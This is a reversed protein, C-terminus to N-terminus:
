EGPHMGGAFAHSTAGRSYPVLKDGDLRLARLEFRTQIPHVDRKEGHTFVLLEERSSRAGPAVRDVDAGALKGTSLTEGPLAWSEPLEYRTKLSCGTGSLDWVEITRGVATALEPKGDGNLDAFAQESVAGVFGADVGHELSQLVSAREQAELREIPPLEADTSLLTLRRRADSWEMDGGLSVELKALELSARSAHALDGSRSAELLLFPLTPQPRHSEAVRLSLEFPQGIIAQLAASTPEQLLRRVAGHLGLSSLGDLAIAHAQRGRTTSPNLLGRLEEIASLPNRLAMQARALQIRRDEEWRRSVGLAAWLVLGIVALVAALSRFPHRRLWRRGSDLKSRPRAHVAEGQLFRGIDDAMAAATPYRRSPEWRLAQECIAAAERSLGPVISLLPEPDDRALKRAATPTFAGGYPPKGALTHYLTAGLAYVDARADVDCGLVQEPAAYDITALVEGVRTIPSAEEIRALGFDALRAHGGGPDAPHVSELLINGPKVDRHCIGNAHAAALARAVDQAIEFARRPRLLKSSRLVAALSPGQVLEMAIWHQGEAEGMALVKVVGPHAIRAAAQAERRFRELTADDAASEHHLVKLAITRGLRLERARYVISHVGRGLVDLLEFQDSLSRPPEGPRVPSAPAGCLENDSPASGPGKELPWGASLSRRVDEVVTPEILRADILAQTSETGPPLSRLLQFCADLAASGLLGLRGAALCLLYVNGDSVSCSDSLRQTEEKTPASLGGGRRGRCAAEGEEAGSPRRAGGASSGDGASLQATFRNKSLSESAPEDRPTSM